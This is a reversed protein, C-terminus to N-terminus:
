PAVLSSRHFEPPISRCFSVLLLCVSDYIDYIAYIDHIEYIDHMEKSIMFRMFIMSRMNKGIILCYQM